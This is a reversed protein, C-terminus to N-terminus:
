LEWEKYGHLSLSVNGYTAAADYSTFTCSVTSSAAFCRQVPLEYGALNKGCINAMDVAIDMLNRGSGSDNIQVRVLPIVQTANTQAAEAIDAFGTIKTCIFNADAQINISDTLTGDSVLGAGRFTYVYWDRMVQKTVAVGNVNRTVTLVQLNTSM